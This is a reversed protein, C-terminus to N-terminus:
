QSYRLSPLYFGRPPNTHVLNTHQVYLSLFSSPFCVHENLRAVQAYSYYEILIRTSFSSCPLPPESHMSVSDGLKNDIFSQEHSNNPTKTPSFRRTFFIKFCFRREVNVVPVILSSSLACPLSPITTSNRMTQGGWFFGPNASLAALRCQDKVVVGVFRRANCCTVASKIM